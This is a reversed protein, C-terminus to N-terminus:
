ESLCIRKPLQIEAPFAKKYKVKLYLYNRTMYYIRVPSHLSRHTSKLSKYSTHVSLIGLSHQFIVNTFKIVKYGKLIARYCYEHDVNDIFLAEDFYGTENFLSLNIMSGSTILSTVETYECEIRENEKKIFEAGTVAIQEKDALGQLCRIYTSIYKDSFCSDQDMTLLWEFGDAIALKCVQNLRQAIGKNEGDHMYHCNPIEKISRTIEDAPKESNDIAYVRNVHSSYSLVNDITKEEPYFLIVAAAINM